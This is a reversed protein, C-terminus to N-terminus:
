IGGKLQIFNLKMTLNQYQQFTSWLWRKIRSKENKNIMSLIKFIKKEYKYISANESILHYQFGLPYCTCKEIEGEEKHAEIMTHIYCVKVAYPSVSMDAQSQCRRNRKKKSIKKMNTTSNRDPWIGGYWIRKPPHFGNRFGAHRGGDQLRFLM